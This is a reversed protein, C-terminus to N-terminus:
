SVGYLLATGASFTGSAPYLYISSIAGTQNYAWYGNYCRYSTATTPDTTLSWMRGFKWTTTNTYDFFETYSLGNGTGTNNSDQITVNTTGFTGTSGSNTGHPTTEYIHRNSTSDANIRMKLGDAISPRFNRVVLVLDKYSQSISSLTVSSGTLTTTSLLTMGGAAPTAWKLGLSENSDATLVTDNAGIPIRQDSTSFGYLDGKTTLPSGGGADTNFFIAASASIFYLTGADYQSLALTASTNVTATGATVTVVGAGRNQIVLTDGADFLGTNVTCAVSGSTNFEIRTGKDAAVLTYAATKASVTQNFDNSQLSNVQAATLVQGTTFTQKAM